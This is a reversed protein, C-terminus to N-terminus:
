EAPEEFKHDYDGRTFNYTVHMAEKLDDQKKMMIIIEGIFRVTKKRTEINVVVAGVVPKKTDVLPDAEGGGGEGEGEGEKPKEAAEAQALEQDAAAKQRAMEKEADSSNLGFHVKKGDAKAQTEYDLIEQKRELEAAVLEANREAIKKDRKSRFEKMVGEEAPVEIEAEVVVAYKIDRYTINKDEAYLNKRRIATVGDVALTLAEIKKCFSEMEDADKALVTGRVLDLCKEPVIVQDDWSWTDPSKERDEKCDDQVKDLIRSFGKIPIADMGPGLKWGGDGTYVGEGDGKVLTCKGLKEVFINHFKKNTLHAIGLLYVIYMSQWFTCSQPDEFVKPYVSSGFFPHMGSWLNKLAPYGDIVNLNFLAHSMFRLDQTQIAKRVNAIDLCDFEDEPTIAKSENACLAWADNQILAHKKAEWETNAVLKFCGSRYQGETDTLNHGAQKMDDQWKQLRAKFLTNVQYCSNSFSDETYQKKERTDVIDKRMAEAKAGQYSAELTKKVTETLKAVEADNQSKIAAGDEGFNIHKSYMERAHVFFDARKEPFKKACWLQCGISIFKLWWWKAVSNATKWDFPGKTAAMAHAFIKEEAKTLGTTPDDERNYSKVALPLLLYAYVHGVRSKWTTEIAAPSPSAKAIDGLHWLMDYLRFLKVLDGPKAKQFREHTPKFEELSEDVEPIERTLPHDPDWFTRKCSVGQYTCENVFGNEELSAELLEKTREAVFQAKKAMADKDGSNSPFKVQAEATATATAQGVFFSTITDRKQGVRHMAWKRKVKAQFVALQSKNYRLQDMLWSVISLQSMPQGWVTKEDAKPEIKGAHEKCAKEFEDWGPLKPVGLSVNGMQYPTCGLKNLQTSDGGEDELMRTMELTKCMHLVTNGQTNAQDVNSGMDILYKVITDQYEAFNSIVDDQNLLHRYGGIWRKNKVDVNCMMCCKCCCWCCSLGNRWWSSEGNVSAWIMLASTGDPTTQLPDWGQKRGQEWGQMSRPISLHLWLFSKQKVPLGLLQHAEDTSNSMVSFYIHWKHHFTRMYNGLLTPLGSVYVKYYPSMIIARWKPSGIYLYSVVIGSIVALALMIIGDILDTIKWVEGPAHEMPEGLNVLGFILSFVAYTIFAWTGIGVWCGMPDVRLIILRHLLQLCSLPPTIIMAVLSVFFTIVAQGCYGKNPIPDIERYEYPKAEKQVPNWCCKCCFQGCRAKEDNSLVDADTSGANGGTYNIAPTVANKLMNGM